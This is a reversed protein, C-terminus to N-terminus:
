LPSPIDAHSLSLSTVFLTKYSCVQDTLQQLEEDDSIVIVEHHGNNFVSRNDADNSPLAVQAASRVRVM